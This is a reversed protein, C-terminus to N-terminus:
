ARARESNTPSSFSPGASFEDVLAVDRVKKRVFFTSVTAFIVPFITLPDSRALELMRRVDPGERQEDEGRCSGKSVRRM